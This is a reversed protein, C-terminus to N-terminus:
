CISRSAQRPAASFHRRCASTVILRHGTQREFEPGVEALRPSPAAMWVRIEEASVASSQLLFASAAIAVVTAQPKM